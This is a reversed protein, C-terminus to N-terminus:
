WSTDLSIGVVGSAAFPTLDLVAFPTPSRTGGDAAMNIKYSLSAENNKVYYYIGYLAAAAGVGAGINYAQTVRDQKEVKGRATTADDSTSAKKYQAYYGDSKQQSQEAAYLGYGLAATGTGMLMWGKLWVGWPRVQEQKLKLTENESVTVVGDKISVSSASLKINGPEGSVSVTTFAHFAKQKGLEVAKTVDVQMSNHQYVQEQAIKERLEDKIAEPLFRLGQKVLFSELSAQFAACWAKADTLAPECREVNLFLVKSKETKLKAGLAQALTEAAPGASDSAIDIDVWTDTDVEARAVGASAVAHLMATMTIQIRWSRM